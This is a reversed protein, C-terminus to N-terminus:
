WFQLLVTPLRMILGQIAALVPCNNELSWALSQAPVISKNETNYQQWMYVSGPTGFFHTEQVGKFYTRDAWPRTFVKCSRAM